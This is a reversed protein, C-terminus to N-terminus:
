GEGTVLGELAGRLDAPLPRPRSRGDLCGMVTWGDVLLEGQRDLVEYRFDVRTPRVRSVRTRVKIVEDYRAPARYRCSVESVVLLIGKAELEAYPYGIERLYETRGTEFFALYNAYYVVGMKDTDAYRVRLEVERVRSM